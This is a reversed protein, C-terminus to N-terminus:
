KVEAYFTLLRRGLDNYIDTRASSLDVSNEETKRYESLRSGIVTHDIMRLNPTVTGVLFISVAFTTFSGNRIETSDCPM